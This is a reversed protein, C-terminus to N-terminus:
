DRRYRRFVPRKCFVARCTAKPPDANGDGDWLTRIYVALPQITYQSSARHCIWRATCINLWGGSLLVKLGKPLFASYDPAPAGSVSQFYNCTGRIMKPGAPAGDTYRPGTPLIRSRLSILLVRRRPVQKVAMVTILKLSCVLQPWRTAALRLFTKMSAWNRAIWSAPGSRKCFSSLRSQLPKNPIEAPSPGAANRSGLLEALVWRQPKGLEGRPIEDVFYIRHPVKFAALREAAYRRLEQASVPTLM